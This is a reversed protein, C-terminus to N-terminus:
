SAAREGPSVVDPCGRDKGKQILELARAMDPGACAEASPCWALCGIDMRENFVTGGCSKCRRKMEDKFFELQNGCKKCAVDYVADPGWKQTDQGPCKPSEGCDSIRRRTGGRSRAALGQEHVDGNGGKVTAIAM